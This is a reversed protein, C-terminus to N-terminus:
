EVVLKKVENNIKVFYIGPSFGSIDIIYESNNQRILKESFIIEGLLNTILINGTNKNFLKVHLIDDAPNPYVVFQSESKILEDISVICITNSTMTGCHQLAYWGMANYCGTQTMVISNTDSNPIAVGDIYWEYHFANNGTYTLVNGNQAITGQLAHYDTNINLPTTTYHCGNSDAQMIYFTNYLQAMTQYITDTYNVLVGSTSTIWNAWHLIPSYSAILTIPDGFCFATDNNLTTLVPPITAPAMGATAPVCTSWTLGASDTTTLSVSYPATPAFSIDQTTDGTSWLYSTMGPEGYFTITNGECFVVEDMILSITTGAVSSLPYNNYPVSLVYVIQSTTDIGGYGAAYMTVTYYGTAPFKFNVVNGCHDINGDNNFDWQAGVSNISTNTFPYSHCNANGMIFSAVPVSGGPNQGCGNSQLLTSRITSLVNYMRDAQGQTFSLPCNTYDMYNPLEDMDTVFPNVGSTDDMETFCSNGMCTMDNTADPPTDCVMDGNLLCNDNHCGGQFTHYLGLYHGLEHVILTSNFANAQIVIGDIATGASSPFVAYGYYQSNTAAIIWINMYLHPDWRSLNKLNFDNASPSSGLSTYSSVTRTIGTTANGYPDISALCLQIQADTGTVDYFPVSNLLRLNTENLANIVTTDAINEPGNQHIIHVVVPITLVTSSNKFGANSKVAQEYLLQNVKAEQQLAHDDQKQRMEDFRCSFQAQLQLSILVLAFLFIYKKSWNM